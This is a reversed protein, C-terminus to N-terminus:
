NRVPEREVLRLAEDLPGPDLWKAVDVPRELYGDAAFYDARRQLEALLEASIEIGLHSVLEPHHGLRAWEEGLGLEAAIVRWTDDPHRAAWSAAYCHPSM